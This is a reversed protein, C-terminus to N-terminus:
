IRALPAGAPRDVPEPQAQPQTAILKNGNAEIRKMRELRQDLLTAFDKETIQATALLKPMEFPIAAMAARMRVYLEQGPDRYIAQLLDLSTGNPGIDIKECLCAEVRDLIQYVTEKM